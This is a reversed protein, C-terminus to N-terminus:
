GRFLDAAPPRGVIGPRNSRPLRGVDMASMQALTSRRRRHENACREYASAAQPFGTAMFVKQVAAALQDTTLVVEQGHVSQLGTLVSSALDVARWPEDCIDASHLALYISHALKTARLWERRGDRKDVLFEARRKM